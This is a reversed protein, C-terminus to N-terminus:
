QANVYAKFRAKTQADAKNYWFHLMDEATAGAPTQASVAGQEYVAAIADTQNYERTEEFYNRGFQLGNKKLEDQKVDIAKGSKEVIVLKFDDISRQAEKLDSYQPLDFSLQQDQATFKAIIVESEAKGRVSGRTFAPEYRLVIQQQGNELELTQSSFSNSSIAPQKGNVVLLDVSSPIELTVKAAAGTSFVIALLYSLPKIVNM